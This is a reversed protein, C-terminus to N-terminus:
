GMGCAPCNNDDGPQENGNQGGQQSIQEKQPKVENKAKDQCSSLIAISMASLVLTSLKM